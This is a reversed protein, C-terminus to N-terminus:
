PEGLLDVEPDGADYREKLQQQFSKRPKSPKKPMEKEVVKEKGMPKKEPNEWELMDIEQMNEEHLTPLLTPVECPNSQPVILVREDILDQVVKKLM